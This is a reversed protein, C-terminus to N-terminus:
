RKRLREIAQKLSIRMRDLSEALTGIEDNSDAAIPVDLEGLSIRNAAETLEVIPRTLRQAGIVAGAVALALALLTVVLITIQVRRVIETFWSQKIAVGINGVTKTGAQADTSQVPVFSTYYPTNGGFTADAFSPTEYSGGAANVKQGTAAGRQAGGQLNTSLITGDANTIIVGADERLDRYITEKIENVISQQKDTDSVANDNNVLQGVLVVGQLSEGALVPAAAELFLGEEVDGVAARTKLGTADLVPAKESAVGSQAEPNGGQTRNSVGKFLANDAFQNGDGVPGSNHQAIVKGKQDLLVVFSLRNAELQRTLTESSGGTPTAPPAPTTAAGAAPAPTPTTSRAAGRGTAIPQAISHAATRLNEQRKDFFSKAVRADSKIRETSRQDADKSLQYLIILASVGLPIIIALVAFIILKNRINLKM